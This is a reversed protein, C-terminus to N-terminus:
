QGRSVEHAIQQCGFGTQDPDVSRRNDLCGFIVTFPHDLGIVVSEAEFIGGAAIFPKITM